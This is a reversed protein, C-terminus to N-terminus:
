PLTVLEGRAVQLAQGRVQVQQAVGAVAQVTCEMHSPRQIEAGQEVVYTTSGDEVVLGAAVLYAGLGLAASGTAPDESVGIGPAFVRSHAMRREPDYNFIYVSDSDSGPHSVARAVADATVPLYYFELGTGARMAPGALDSESLGAARLLPAPDIQDSVTPEGGTLSAFEGDVTIDLPGAGCEQVVNGTPIDGRRALTVATGVSPHGAYPLEETPTFIRVRYTCDDSTPPLVFATESLHFERAITQMQGGTLQQADLVVALPNGAFARATFVDVIEYKLM